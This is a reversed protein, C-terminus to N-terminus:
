VPMWRGDTIFGHWTCALCALSATITLPERAVITHNAIYAGDWDGRGSCEHWVITDAPTDGLAIFVGSNDIEVAGPFWESPKQRNTMM